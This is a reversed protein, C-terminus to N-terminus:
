FQQSIELIVRPGRSPGNYIPTGIERNIPWAVGINGTQKGYTSFRMGFGASSGLQYIPQGAAENWVAGRDYFGYPQFQVVDPFSFGNYRLELTGKVGRDGTIESSDFARGYTQGGYGFQESSFLIGSAWQASAAAYLSWNPTIGQVRSFSLEAKTFDPVAGARSIFPDNKNSSGFGNIGHSLTATVTNFGQWSDSVDYNATLRLARIRDRTLPAGLIDSTVNRNELAAKISLNEDRQRIWQYSLGASMFSSFSDIESNALTFGPMAQVIGGSLEAKLDPTITASHQLTGYRLKTRGTDSLASITTQHMSILSATYSATLEDPGLFRSSYNDYALSGSGAQEKVTLTLKVAGDKADQLQAGELPSLTGGFAYGPLDNLLLLISELTQAKLPRQALIRDIAMRVVDSKDLNAAGEVVGV